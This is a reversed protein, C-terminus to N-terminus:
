SLPRIRSYYLKSISWTTYTEFHRYNSTKWIIVLKPKLPELINTSIMIKSHPLRFLHELHKILLYIFFQLFNM